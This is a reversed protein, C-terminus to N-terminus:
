RRAAMNKKLVSYIYIHTEQLYTRFGPMLYMFKNNKKKVNKAIM